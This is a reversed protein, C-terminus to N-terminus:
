KVSIIENDDNIIFENEDIFFTSLDKLIVKDGVLKLKVNGKSPYQCYPDTRKFNIITIMRTRSDNIFNFCNNKKCFVKNPCLRPNERCNQNTSDVLGNECRQWIITDNIPDLIEHNYGQERGESYDYSTEIHDATKTWNLYFHNFEKLFRNERNYLFTKCGSYLIACESSNIYESPIITEIFYKGTPSVERTGVKFLSGNIEYGDSLYYNFIFGSFTKLSISDVWKSFVWKGKKNDIIEEFAEYSVVVKSGNPILTIISSNRNPKSRLYVGMKSNVFHTSNKYEKPLNNIKFKTHFERYKNNEYIIENKHNNFESDQKTSIRCEIFSVIIILVLKIKLLMIPKEKRGGSEVDGLKIERTM